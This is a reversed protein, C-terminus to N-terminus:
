LFPLIKNLAKRTTKPFEFVLERIIRNRYYLEEPLWNLNQSFKSPFRWYIEITKGDTEIRVLFVV